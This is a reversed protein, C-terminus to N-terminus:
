FHILSSNKETWLTLIVSSCDFMGQQADNVKAQNTPMAIILSGCQCDFHSTRVKFHIIFRLTLCYIALLLVVEHKLTLIDGTSCFSECQIQM